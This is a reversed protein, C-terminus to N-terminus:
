ISSVMEKARAWENLDMRHAANKRFDFAKGSFKEALKTMHFTPPTEFSCVAFQWDYFRALSTMILDVFESKGSGPIGTVVTLQGPYFTLLPDFDPIHARCGVPYGEAYYQDAEAEIEGFQVLGQIPFDQANDVISKLAEEGHNILIENADKCGEPYTIFKCKEIGIRRCLEEKLKQGPADNDVAIIVTDMSIFHQYCNDLYELRLNGTGAGNPVSVCNYIGAEYMSLCDIEGEVIVCERKEKIADLNYFILEADKAMKFAKKPGRFKINVLTNDRYYNFCIVTTEQGFQPMWEKAETIGFRLLTNNSIKRENEFWGITKKSLKELREVPRVFDKTKSEEVEINYKKGLWKVADIYSLKEHEMVFSIADGSKGCGFCKYIDKVDSVTFSPSKENHFPCLGVHNAAQRKLKVFDSVVETIKTKQKIIEITENPIM